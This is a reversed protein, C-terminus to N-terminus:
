LLHTSSICPYFHGNPQLPHHFSDSMTSMIIKSDGGPHLFCTIKHYIVNTKKLSLVIARRLYKLPKSRCNNLPLVTSIKKLYNHYKNSTSYNNQLRNEIGPPPCKFTNEFIYGKTTGQLRITVQEEEVKPEGIHFRKPLVFRGQRSHCTCQVQLQTTLTGILDMTYHARYLALGMKSM